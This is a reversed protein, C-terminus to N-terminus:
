ERSKLHSKIDYSALGYKLHIPDIGSLYLTVNSGAAVWPVLDEEGVEIVLRLRNLMWSCNWLDLSRRRITASEDGPLVRLKEGVQVVGSSVRGSVGLGSSSSTQGKFVNSVPIRLPAEIARTPAELEDSIFTPMNSDIIM